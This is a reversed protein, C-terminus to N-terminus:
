DEVEEPRRRRWWAAFMGGLLPALLWGLVDLEQLFRGTNPLILPFGAGSGAGTAEGFADPEPVSGDAAGSIVAVPGAVPGGGTGDPAPGGTGGTGGPGGPGGPGPTVATCGDPAPASAETLVLKINFGAISGQSTRGNLVSALRLRVDVRASAGPALAVSSLLSRCPDASTLVADPGTQPGISARVSLQAVFQPDAGTVDVLAVALNGPTSQQNRVWFSRTDSGGPVITAGAFLSAPLQDAWTVGDPSLGIPDPAAVAPSANAVVVAAALLVAAAPRGLTALRSM